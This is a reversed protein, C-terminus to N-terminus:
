VYSPGGPRGLRLRPHLSRRRSGLARLLLGRVVALLVLPVVHGPRGLCQSRDAAHLSGARQLQASKDRLLLGGVSQRAPQGRGTGPRDFALRGVRLRGVAVAHGDTDAYWERETDTDAHREREAHTDTDRE